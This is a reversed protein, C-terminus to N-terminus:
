NDQSHENHSPEPFLMNSLPVLTAATTRPEATATAQEPGDESDGEWATGCTPSGAGRKESGEASPGATESASNRPLDGTKSYKLM